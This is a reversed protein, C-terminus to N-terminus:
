QRAIRALQPYLWDRVLEAGEPTLHVGDEGRVRLGDLEVTYEGHPCLLEHLDIFHVQRPQREVAARYLDSVHAIRDEDNEPRPAGTIDAPRNNCPPGILVVQAGSSGLDDILDDLNTAYWDDFERSGFQLRQGEVERDYTEWVGSLVSVVDPDFEGIWRSRDERWPGCQDGGAMRVTGGAIPQGAYLPCGIASRDWLLIPPDSTRAEYGLSLMLALSDGTSLLRVASDGGWTKPPETPEYTVIDAMDNPGNEVAEMKRPLGSPVDGVASVALTTRDPASPVIVVLTVAAAAVGIAATTTWVPTSLRGERVPREVLRFSLLAVLLTATLRLVVLPTGHLGTRDPTLVVYTPYHWLYLGYSLLGIWPLPHASLGRRLLGGPQQVAVVVLGVALSLVLMGGEFLWTDASDVTAALWLVWALALVGAADLGIRWSRRSPVLGTFRTAVLALLAGTLLEQARTDTGYYVRSPDTGPVARVAAWVASLLVLAFTASAAATIRRRGSGIALLGSLILPWVLYWQEEVALSWTHNLPSPAAFTDFYGRDAAVLRWNMFYAGTALADDRLSELSGTPAAVIGYVAVAALVLVIAPFLRRARRGYFAAIGVRGERFREEVLLWTILFGSLVFFVDVGLFGGSAWGVGGHYLLVLIVALARLGDLAPQYGLHPVDRRLHSRGVVM